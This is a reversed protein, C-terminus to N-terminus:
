KKSFFDVFKQNFVQAFSAALRGHLVRYLDAKMMVPDSGTERHSVNLVQSNLDEMRGGAAPRIVHIVASIAGSMRMRADDYQFGDYQVGDLLIAYAINSPLASTSNVIDIRWNYPNLSQTIAAELTLNQPSRPLNSVMYFFGSQKRDSATMKGVSVYKDEELSTDRTYHQEIFKQVDKQIASLRVSGEVLCAYERTEAVCSKRLDSTFYRRRAAAQDKELSALFQDGVKGDVENGVASELAKRLADRVAGAFAEDETAGRGTIRVFWDAAHTAPAVGFLAAILLTISFIHRIM